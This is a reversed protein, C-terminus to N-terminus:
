KLSYLVLKIDRRSWSGPTVVQKDNIRLWIYEKDKIEPYFLFEHLEDRDKEKYNGAQDKEWYKEYEKAETMYKTRHFYKNNDICYLAFHRQMTGDNNNVNVTKFKWKPYDDMKNPDFDDESAKFDSMVVKEGVKQHENSRVVLVSTENNISLIKPEFNLQGFATNASLFILVITLLQISKKM